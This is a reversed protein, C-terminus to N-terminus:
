QYIKCLSCYFHSLTRTNGGGRAGSFNIANIKPNFLSPSTGRLYSMKKKKRVKFPRNKKLSISSQHLSFLVQFPGVGRTILIFYIAKWCQSRPQQGFRSIVQDEAVTEEGVCTKKPPLWVVAMIIDHLHSCLTWSMMCIAPCSPHQAFPQEVDQIDHLHSCLTCSMM